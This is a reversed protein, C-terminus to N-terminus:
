CREGEFGQEAELGERLESVSLLFNKIVSQVFELERENSPKHGMGEVIVLDCNKVKKCFRVSQDIPVVDDETGHIILIPAEYEFNIPSHEYLVNPDKVSNMIDEYIVPIRKKLHEMQARLDTPPAVAVAPVGFKSSLLLALAGGMSHGGYVDAKSDKFAEWAKTLPAPVKPVEVEKYVEKFPKILWTIKSPSSGYGHFIMAKM